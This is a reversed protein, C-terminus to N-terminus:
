DSGMCCHSHIFVFLLASGSSKERGPAQTKVLLTNPRMAIEEASDFIEYNKVQM